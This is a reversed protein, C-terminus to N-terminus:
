KGDLEEDKRENKKNFLKKILNSIGDVLKDSILAMNDTVIDIINFLNDFKSVKNNVEDLIKNFKDAVGILKITLIILAILLISGLSSLIINMFVETDIM